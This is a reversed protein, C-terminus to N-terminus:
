GKKNLAAQHKNYFAELKDINFLIMKIKGIGMQLQTPFGGGMFSMSLMPHGKYSGEGVMIQGDPKQDVPLQITHSIVGDKEIM